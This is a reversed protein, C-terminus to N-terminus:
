ALRRGTRRRCARRRQRERDADKGDRRLASRGPLSRYKEPLRTAMIPLLPSVMADDSGTNFPNVPSRRCSLRGFDGFIGLSARFNASLRGSTASGAIPLVLPPSESPLYAGPGPPCHTMPRPPRARSGLQPTTHFRAGPYPTGARCGTGMRRYAPDAVRALLCSLMTALPRGTTPPPSDRPAATRRESCGSRAGRPLASGSCLTVILAMAASAPTETGVTDRTTLPRDS